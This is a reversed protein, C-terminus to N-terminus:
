LGQLFNPFFYGLNIDESYFESTCLSDLFAHCDTKSLKFQKDSFTKGLKQNNDGMSKLDTCVILFHTAIM